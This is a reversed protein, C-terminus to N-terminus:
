RLGDRTVNLLAAFPCQPCVVCPLRGCRYFSGILSWLLWIYIKFYLPLALYADWGVGYVILLTCVLFTPLSSGTM